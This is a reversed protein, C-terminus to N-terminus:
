RNTSISVFPDNVSYSIATLYRHLEQSSACEDIIDLYLWKKQSSSVVFLLFLTNYHRILLHFNFCFPFKYLALCFMRIKEKVLRLMAVGCWVAFLFVAVIYLLWNKLM